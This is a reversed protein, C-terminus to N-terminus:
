TRAEAFGAQRDVGTRNTAEAGQSSDEGISRGAGVDWGVVAAGSRERGDRDAGQSVIRVKGLGCWARGFRVMAAMGRGDTGGREGRMRAQWGEGCRDGDNRVWVAAGARLRDLGIREAVRSGTM